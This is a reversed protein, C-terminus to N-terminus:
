APIDALRDVGTRRGLCVSCGLSRVGCQISLSRALMGLAPLPFPCKIDRHEADRPTM